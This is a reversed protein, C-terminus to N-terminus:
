RSYRLTREGRIELTARTWHGVYPLGVHRDLLQLTSGERQWSGDVRSQLVTGAISTQTLEAYTGDPRLEISGGVAEISSQIAAPLAVGDVAILTWTGEPSTPRTPEACGSAALFLVGSVMRRAVRM